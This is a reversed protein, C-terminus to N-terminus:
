IILTRIFWHSQDLWAQVCIFFTASKAVKKAIPSRLKKKANECKKNNKFEIVIAMGYEGISAPIAAYDCAGYLGQVQLCDRKSM